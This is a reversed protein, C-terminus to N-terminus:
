IPWTVLIILWENTSHNDGVTIMKLCRADNEMHFVHVSLVLYNFINKGSNTTRIGAPIRAEAEGTHLLINIDLKLSFLALSIGRGSLFNSSKMSSSRQIDGAM